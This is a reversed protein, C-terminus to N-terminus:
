VFELQRGGRKRKLKVLKQEVIEGTETKVVVTLTGLDDGASSGGSAASGLPRVRAGAPLDLIEPRGGDGVMVSGATELVGGRALHPIHPVGITGGGITKGFAHVKPLSFHLGNWIDIIGNIMSRFTSGIGSWMGSAASSIKGPIGKFFGIFGNWRDKIWDVAQGAGASIQKWHSLVFIVAAGFPGTIIALLLKWHDKIWGFAAAGAAMVGHFAGTVIRRFTDSHKWALILAAVLAIIAIVVLGLPNAEMAANLLWQAAAAAKTAGASVIEQATLLALQIRTGLMLTKGLELASGLIAFSAGATQIVPGWKNGFESLMDGAKVKLVKLKGTFTDVSAAATGDLKKGLQDFGAAQDTAASKVGEMALKVKEQKVKLADSAKTVATHAAKLAHQAAAGHLAGAAVQAQVAHLNTLADRQGGAAITVAAQSKDLRTNAASTSAIQLGYFKFLKTNGNMAGGVLKAAAELSIHKSAALETVLSMHDLAKDADGTMQTLLALANKTDVDSIALNQNAKVVRSIRGEYEDMSHGTAKVAQELANESAKTKSGLSSLAVGLGAMAVGGAMLKPAMGGAAEGLSGLGEGVKGMIEGVEGGITQGMKSFSAGVSSSVSEAHTAVEDTAKSASVDQGLLLYRLTVDSM